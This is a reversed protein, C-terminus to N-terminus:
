LITSPLTQWAPLARRDGSKGQKRVYGEFSPLRGSLEGPMIRKDTGVGLATLREQVFSAKAAM